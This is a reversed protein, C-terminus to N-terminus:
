LGAESFLKVMHEDSVIFYKLVLDANGKDAVSKVAGAWKESDPTLMAKEQKIPKHTSIRVGGVTEGKMRVSNDIYLQVPVCKWEEIFPVGGCLDKMTRSNTANLVLPKIKEEFYAINADIKRGAVKAGFEQRVHKITFILDSGNESLDELDAISLHDSKFVRRFHTKNSM